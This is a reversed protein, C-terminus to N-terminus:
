FIFKEHLTLSYTFVLNLSFIKLKVIGNPLYVRYTSDEIDKKSKNTQM